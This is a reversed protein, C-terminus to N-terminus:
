GQKGPETAAAAQPRRDMAQGIAGADPEVRLTGTNKMYQLIQIQLQSRAQEFSDQASLLSVQADVVDRNSLSGQQLLINANELRRQALEIGRRQIELNVEATHIARLSSRVDSTVIERQTVYTRQARELSILASRFDNREKVRDLPLDLTLSASYDQVRDHNAAQSSKSGDLVDVEGQFSLGPLLGNRANSVKRRADDIQDEATRLSLRYRYALAVADDATTHPVNVDLSVAIVDLPEEVPMGLAIKFTDLDNDYNAQANLLDSDASLRQQLARQVEIFQLKGAEFLAQSRNVLDQANILNLRRNFVGTQSTLLRLYQSSIDVVFQRRYDEFSRVQYIVQRESNILPELNVMGAGKLLPISASFALKSDEGDIVNENLTRVFDVLSQAVIEGGYPLTQRVGAANTVKLASQYNKEQEGTGSYGITQTAFPRPSLLHRQLTIDLASLYLDEMHNQYDRNHQVAYKLCGSLDLRKPTRGPAPPGLPAIIPSQQMAEADIPTGGFPGPKGWFAEPGLPGHPTQQRMPELPPPTPPPIPTSPIKQYAQERPKTPVNLTAVAEPDYGLTQQKRDKLLDYVQLDASKEYWASSCGAVAAALLGIVLQKKLGAM